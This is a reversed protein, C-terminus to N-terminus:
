RSSAAYPGATILREALSQRLACVMAHIDPHAPRREPKRNRRPPEADLVRVIVPLPCRVDHLFNAAKQRSQQRAIKQAHFVCIAMEKNPRDSAHMTNEKQVHQPPYRIAPKIRPLTKIDAPHAGARYYTLRRIPISRAM